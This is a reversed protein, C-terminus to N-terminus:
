GVDSSQFWKCTLSWAAYSRTRDPSTREGPGIERKDVFVRLGLAELREALTLIWAKDPTAHSLFIDYEGRPPDNGTPIEGHNQDGAM